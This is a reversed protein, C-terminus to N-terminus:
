RSTGAIKHGSSTVVITCATTCHLYRLLLSVIGPDLLCLLLFWQINCVLLLLLGTECNQECAM